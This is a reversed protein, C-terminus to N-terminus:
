RFDDDCYPHDISFRSKLQGKYEFCSPFEKSVGSTCDPLCLKGSKKVQISPDSYRYSSFLPFEESNLTSKSM